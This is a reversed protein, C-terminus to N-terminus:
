IHTTGKGTVLASHETGSAIQVVQEGDICPVKELTLLSSTQMDFMIDSPASSVDHSPYDLTFTSSDRTSSAAITKSQQVVANGSKPLDCKQHRFVGITFYQGETICFPLLDSLMELCYLEVLFVCHV